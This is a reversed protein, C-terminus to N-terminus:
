PLALERDVWRGEAEPWAVGLLLKKACAPVVLGGLLGVRDIKGGSGHVRLRVHPVSVPLSRLENALCARLSPEKPLPQEIPKANSAVHAVPRDGVPEAASPRMPAVKIKTNPQEASAREEPPRAKAPTASPPASLPV